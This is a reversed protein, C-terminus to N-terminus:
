QVMMEDKIITLQKNKEVLNRWSRRSTSDKGTQKKERLEVSFTSEPEM